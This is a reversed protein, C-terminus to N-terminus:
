YASVINTAIREIQRAIDPAGTMEGFSGRTLPGLALFSAQAAGDRSILRSELDVSLGVRVDDEQALGSDLLQAILPDSKLSKGPGTCLIIAEFPARQPVMRLRQLTAVIKEHEVDLAALGAREVVLRGDKCLDMLLNHLQPAIRFRHVDWFPLLRRLVCRKEELPLALWMQRLKFRLGDVVPHWGLNEYQRVRRRVLQLLGIATEPAPEGDLIDVDDLFLGHPRPLLGRRSIATVRGRHGADALSALADAMSLGTGVVLVSDYSGIASLADAKWPNRILGSHRLAAPSAPCPLVPASHGICLVVKDVTLQEESSLEVTWGAGNSQVAVARARHHRLRHRFHTASITRKLTDLVYTGIASRAVYHHGQSDTSAGDPLIGNAFLWQTLHKPHDKFLSMRDSPVNIRHTPDVTGYAIGRGLEASPEIVEIELPRTAARIAHISLVVGTFGGGVVALRLTKNQRTTMDRVFSCESKATRCDGARFM